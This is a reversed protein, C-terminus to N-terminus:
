DSTTKVDLRLARALGIAAFCLLYPIVPVRYRLSGVFVTHLACTYIIPALCLLAGRWDTKWAILIGAAALLCVPIASAASIFMYSPNRYGSFNPVVNWFRVFKRACLGLFRGPNEAIFKLAANKMFRDRELEPLNEAEEIWLGPDDMMPGGDAKPNNAEWLSAGGQTTTPVFAGLALFNRIVWPLMVLATAALALGCTKVAQRRDQLIVLLLAVLMLPFLLLAPRVLIGLGVFVGVLIATKISFCRLVKALWLMGTLLLFTYLTETLALSTFFIHFPEVAMGAAALKAAGESEFLEKALLYVVVCSVAGLLAQALRIVAPRRGCLIMFLPYLPPREALRDDRIIFGKGSLVNKAILDYQKSDPFRFDPYQANFYIVM